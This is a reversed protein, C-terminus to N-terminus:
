ESELPLRSPDVFGAGPLNEITFRQQLDQINEALIAQSRVKETVHFAYSVGHIVLPAWEGFV